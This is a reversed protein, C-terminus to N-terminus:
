GRPETGGGDRNVVAGGELVGSGARGRLGRPEAARLTTGGVSRSSITRQRVEGQLQALGDALKGLEGELEARRAASLDVVSGRSLSLYAARPLGASFEEYGRSDVLAAGGIRRPEASVVVRPFELATPAFATERCGRPDVPRVHGRARAHSNERLNGPHFRPFQLPVTIAAGAQHPMIVEIGDVGSEM